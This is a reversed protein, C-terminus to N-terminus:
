GDGGGEVGDRDQGGTEPWLVLMSIGTFTLLHGIFMRGEVFGGKGMQVACLLFNVFTYIVSVVTATVVWSPRKERFVPGVGRIRKRLYLVTPGWMVIMAFFLPLAVWMMNVFYSLVVALVNALWVALPLRDKIKHRM